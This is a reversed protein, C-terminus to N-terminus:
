HYFVYFEINPPCTDGMGRVLDTGTHSLERLYMSDDKNYHRIALQVAVPAKSPRQDKNASLKRAM